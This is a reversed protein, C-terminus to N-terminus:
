KGAGPSYFIPIVPIRQFHISAYRDDLVWHTEILLWLELKSGTNDPTGWPLIRVGRSKRM